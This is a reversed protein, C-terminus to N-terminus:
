NARIRVRHASRFQENSVVSLFVPFQNVGPTHWKSRSTESTRSAYLTLFRRRHLRASTTKCHLLTDICHASHAALTCRPRASPGFRRMSNLRSMSSLQQHACLQQVWGWGVAAHGWNVAAYGMQLWQMHTMREVNDNIIRVRLALRCMVALICQAQWTV